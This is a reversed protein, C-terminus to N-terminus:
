TTGNGLHFLCVFLRVDCSISFILMLALEKFLKFRFSKRLTSFFKCLYLSMFGHCKSVRHHLRYSGNRGECIVKKYGSRGGSDTKCAEINHGLIELM